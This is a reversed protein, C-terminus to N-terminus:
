IRVRGSGTLIVPSESAEGLAKVVRVRSTGDTSFQQGTHVDEYVSTPGIHAVVRYRTKTKDEFETGVTLTGMEDFTQKGWTAYTFPTFEDSKLPTPLDTSKQDLSPSEDLFPAKAKLFSLFGIGDAMEKLSLIGGSEGTGQQGDLAFTSNEGVKVWVVPSGALPNSFQVKGGVPLAKLEDVSGVKGGISVSGDTGVADNQSRVFASPAVSYNLAGDTIIPEAGAQKVMWQKGHKDKFVTGASLDGIPENVTDGYTAYTFSKFGATSADPLSSATIKDLSAPVGHEAYTFLEPHFQLVQGPQNQGDTIVQVVGAQDGGPPVLIKYFGGNSLKVYDGADIPITPTTTAAQEPPKPDRAVVLPGYDAVEHSKWSLSSSWKSDSQDPDVMVEWGNDGAVKRWLDGAKDKLVIGIPLADVEEKTTVKTGDTWVGGWPLQSLGKDSPESHVLTSVVKYPEDKKAMNVIGDVMDQQPYTQGVATAISWNGNEIKKYQTGDHREVISGTPLHQVWWLASNEDHTSLFMGATPVKGAKAWQEPSPGSTAGNGSALPIGGEGTGDGISVVQYLLHEPEDISRLVVDEAIVSDPYATHKTGPAWANPGVKTYQTSFDTADVAPRDLVTGLPFSELWGQATDTNDTQLKAGAIPDFAAEAEVSPLEAIKYPNEGDNHASLIAKSMVETSFTNGNKPVTWEDDSVKSYVSVGGGYAAAKPIEIKSGVPLTVITSWAQDEDAPRLAQGVQPPEGPIFSPPGFEPAPAAGAPDSAIEVSKNGALVKTSSYGGMVSDEWAYDQWSGTNGFLQWPYAESDSMKKWHNGGNDKLITGVPLADLEISSPHEALTPSPKLKPPEAPDEVTTMPGWTPLGAMLTSLSNATPEWGKGTSSWMQAVTGYGSDTGGFSPDKATPDIKWLDGDKDKLVTGPPVRKLIEPDTIEVGLPLPKVGVAAAAAVYFQLEPQETNSSHSDSVIQAMEGPNLVPLNSPEGHDYPQWNGSEQKVYAFWDSDGVKREIRTGAPLALLAELAKGPTNAFQLPDGMAAKEIGVVEFGGAPESKALDVSKLISTENWLGNDGHPKLIWGTKGGVTGDEAKYRKWFDGDKDKLVTGLPLADLAEKSYPIKANVPPSELSGLGHTARSALVTTSITDTGLTGDENLECWVAGDRKWFEWGGGTPLDHSKLYLKVISGEPASKIPSTDANTDALDTVVWDPGVGLDPAIAQGAKTKSTITVSKYANLHLYDAMLGDSPMKVGGDDTTWAGSPQKTFMLHGGFNENDALSLHSGTPAAQLSSTVEKTPLGVLNGMASTEIVSGILADPQIMYGQGNKWGGDAQKVYKTAQTTDIPPVYNVVSGVPLSLLHDISTVTAYPSPAPPPHEMVAEDANAMRQQLALGSVGNSGRWWLDEKTKVWTEPGLFGGVKAGTITVESGIPASLIMGLSEEPDLTVMNAQLPVEFAPQPQEPQEVKKALSWGGTGHESTGFWYNMLVSSSVPKGSEPVWKGAKKTYTGTVVPQGGTAEGAVVRKLVTGAPASSLAKATATKKEPLPTSVTGDGPSYVNPMEEGIIGAGGHAQVMGDPNRAIWSGDEQKQYTLTTVEPSTFTAGIPAADALAIIDPATAGSLDAHELAPSLEAPQPVVGEPTTTSADSAEASTKTVLRTFSKGGSVDSQEGTELNQVTLMKGDSGLVRYPRAKKDSGSLIEGIQFSKGKQKDGLSYDSPRFWTGAMPGLGEGANDPQMKFPPAFKQVKGGAPKARVTGDKLISTITYRVGPQYASERVSFTDGVEPHSPQGFGEPLASLKSAPVEYPPVGGTPGRVIISGEGEGPGIVEVVQADGDSSYVVVDTPKVILGGGATGLPETKFLPNVTFKKGEGDKGEESLSEIVCQTTSASEIKYVKGQVKILTDPELNQVFTADGAPKMGEMQSDSLAVFGSEKKVPKPIDIHGDLKYFGNSWSNSAGYSSGEYQPQMGDQGAKGVKVYRLGTSDGLDEIIIYRTGKLGEIFDGPKLGLESMPKETKAGGEYKLGKVMGPIQKAVDSPIHVYQAGEGGSGILHLDPTQPPLDLQYSADNLAKVADIVAQGTTPKGGVTSNPDKHTAAQLFKKATAPLTHWQAIITKEPDLKLRMGTSTEMESGYGTNFGGSQTNMELHRIAIASITAVSGFQDTQLVGPAWALASIVPIDNVFNNKKLQDASTGGWHTLTIDPAGTQHYLNWQIAEGCDRLARRAEEYAAYNAEVSGGSKFIQWLALYGGGGSGYQSSLADYIATTAKQSYQAKLTAIITKSKGASWKGFRDELYIFHEQDEKGFRKWQEPTLSNPCPINPDHSSEDVSAAVVVQGKATPAFSAQKEVKHPKAPEVNLVHAAKGGVKTAKADMSLEHPFQGTDARQATIRSGHIATVEYVHGDHNFREGVKIFKGGKGYPAGKPWRPHAKEDFIHGLSKIESAAKAVVGEALEEDAPDFDPHRTTVGEVGTDALLENEDADPVLFLDGVDM